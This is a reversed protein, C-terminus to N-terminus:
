DRQMEECTMPYKLDGGLRNTGKRSLYNLPNELPM